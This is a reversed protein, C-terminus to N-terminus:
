ITRRRNPGPPRARPAARREPALGARGRGQERPEHQERVRGRAQPQATAGPGGAIKQRSKGTRGLGTLKVM